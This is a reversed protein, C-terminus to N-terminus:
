LYKALVHKMGKKQAAYPTSLLVVGPRDNVEILIPGDEAIAIDWGLYGELKNKTIAETVMNLVEQFCPIQFGMFKVGTVPHHTFVNCEMDAADTILRGTQMDIHCTMGGSHFNDVISNGGGIRLSCYAIDMSGGDPTVPKSNSSFTVVRITNVSSPCLKLMDPHQVVYQEVVGAPYEALVDYVERITDPNLNFAEVGRGRNGDLPKYIVRETNAFKEAFEAFTVKTNVCWPRRIYEAFFNNTREKDYLMDVFDQNTGFKKQLKKQISAVLVTDQEEKTMDYLRYLYYEKPTCGTRKEAEWFEAEVVAPDKGTKAAVKEVTLAVKKLYGASKSKGEPATVETHTNGSKKGTNKKQDQAEAALKKQEKALKKNQAELRAVREELDEVRELLTKRKFFAVLKRKLAKLLKIM